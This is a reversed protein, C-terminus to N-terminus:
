ENLFDVASDSDCFLIASAHRRMVTAPCDEGIEGTLTRKVAACKTKAPVVCVLHDAGFLAPVTLTLAQKPVDDLSAFCGDNVQQQRCRGDLTVVKVLEKDCFDAVAPDNFAIHGNEGIGMFVIDMHNKEILEAYAPGYESIYYINGFPVRDFIHKKLFVRFSQEADPALGLYEDMHFANLRSWDIDKECLEALFENQSPAAAFVVNISEKKELLRLILREAYSAAARGMEARSGYIEVSLRDKQLKKLIKEM